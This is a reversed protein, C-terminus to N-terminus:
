RSGLVWDDIAAKIDPSLWFSNRVVTKLHELDETVLPEEFAMALEDGRVWAVWGFAKM